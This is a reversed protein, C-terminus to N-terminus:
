SLGQVSAVVVPASLSAKREATEIEATIGTAKFIKDAAQALLEERHALVLTRGPQFTEALKAFLITKGAGTPLVALQRRFQRFGAVMATLASDQYPRLSIGESPASEVPTFCSETM